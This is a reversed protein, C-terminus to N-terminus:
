SLIELERDTKQILENKYFKQYSIPLTLYREDEKYLIGAEVFSNLIAELESSDIHEFEDKLESESIVDTCALFLEREENNLMYIMASDSHRKDYIKIFNGGDIFYFVLRDLTTNRKVCLIKQQEYTNKWNSVLKKWPNEKIKNKRKFSYFFFFQKDLLEKPYMITDIVKPELSEINYQELNNYIISQYGLVYKSISPPELYKQILQINKQSEEFDIPEENPYNIILNYSNTIHNERCYKLAAINDIVKVGKNM